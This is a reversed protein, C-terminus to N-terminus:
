GIQRKTGARSGANTGTECQLFRHQYERRNGPSKSELERRSMRDPRNQAHRKPGRMTNAHDDSPFLARFGASFSTTWFSALESSQMAGKLCFARMCSGAIRCAHGCKLRSM